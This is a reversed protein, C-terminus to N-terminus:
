TRGSELEITVSRLHALVDRWKGADFPGPFFFLGVPSWTATLWGDKVELTLRHHGILASRAESRPKQCWCLL